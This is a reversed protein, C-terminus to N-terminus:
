VLKGCVRHQLDKKCFGKVVVVGCTGDLRCGEVLLKFVAKFNKGLFRIDSFPFVVAGLGVLLFSSAPGVQHVLDVGVHVPREGVVFLCDVPVDLVPVGFRGPSPNGLADFM